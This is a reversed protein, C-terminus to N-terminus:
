KKQCESEELKYELESEGSLIRGALEFDNSMAANFYASSLTHTATVEGVPEEDTYKYGCTRQREDKIEYVRM